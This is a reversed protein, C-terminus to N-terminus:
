YKQSGSSSSNGARAYQATLHETLLRERAYMSEVMAQQREAEAELLLQRHTELAFGRNTSSTATSRGS